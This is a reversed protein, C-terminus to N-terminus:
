HFTYYFKRLHTLQNKNDFTFVTKNLGREFYDYKSTYIINGKSDLRVESLMKGSSDYQFKYHEFSKNKKFKLSHQEIIRGNSDHIFRISYDDSFSSMILDISYRGSDFYHYYYKEIENYIESKIRGLSDYTKISEKFFRGRKVNKFEKDSCNDCFRYEYSTISDKNYAFKEETKYNSNSNFKREFVRRGLSDNEYFWIRFATPKKQYHYYQKKLLIAGDKSYKEFLNLTSDPHNSVKFDYISKTAIKYKVAFEKSTKIEKEKSEISQSIIFPSYFLLILWYFNRLSM